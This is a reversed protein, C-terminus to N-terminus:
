IIQFYITWVIRMQSLTENEIQLYSVATQSTGSFITHEARSWARSSQRDLLCFVFLRKKGLLNTVPYKIPWHYMAM